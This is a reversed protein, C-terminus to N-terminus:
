LQATAAELWHRDEPGLEPALTKLVRAHYTNLWAREDATLMEVVILRRDMPALTLAEFEMMEREGGDIPRLESVVELNEIRIGYHGAKYYGPENSVIMGPELAAMGRKSISQPGEHVSLYSGVGHGTGHDYDFGARWMAMRALTDLQVGRTGKPFRATAIAIHGKLVLTFREAMERTPKGIAVTRTIDTTGDQYQAGSDVVILEGPKLARNTEETVRYHIVAGNPGSGSITDFSIEKLQQTSARYGELKSVAAIETIKGGPAERELWALFRVVAAGDRRHAARAGEIEATSKRAKPLICPEVGSVASKGLQRYFWDGTHVPDLRVRKGADKLAKLRGALTSPPEIKVLAGLHKKADAGVKIADVFLEPKGVAHIIAFALVVPNHAVDSGRINLLWCISDPLTLVVADHGDEKLAKQVDAIKAEPRVGVYDLPQVTIAGQAAAPRAKGWLTDVPNRALAKLKFGKAAGDKALAEIATRTHLKPDYGIVGGPPLKKSLWAVLDVATSDVVEFTAGDIQQSAQLTYRGDTM